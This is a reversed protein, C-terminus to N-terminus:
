KKLNNLYYYSYGFILFGILLLHVVLLERDSIPIGIYYDIITLIENILIYYLPLRHVYCYRFIISVLYMFIWPIISISTFYGLMIADIDFFGLITYIIYFLAEIHFLYKLLVLFSKHNLNRRESKEVRIVFVEKGLQLLDTKPCQNVEEWLKQSKNIFINTIPIFVFFLPNKVSGM